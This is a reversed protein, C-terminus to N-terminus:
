VVSWGHETQIYQEDDALQFGQAPMSCEYRKITLLPKTYELLNFSNEQGRERTSTATGAQIVLASRGNALNYRRSSNTIASVHLHGALFLDAGCNALEPMFKEARGVIDDDDFEYPLDFPHHSVVIKLVKDDIEGLRSRLREVQEENIRGGKIVLSRVTNVGAVALEGDFYWPEHDEGFFENYHKYPQAFRAIVNYLPVDHNGPVILKPMPFQDLFVRAQSFQERRARQTLDGSVVLLDPSLESVKEFVERAVVDDAHGFHVDSIHVISKM